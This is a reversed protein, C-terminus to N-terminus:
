PVPLTVMVEILGLKNFTYAKGTPTFTPALAFMDGWDATHGISSPTFGPGESVAGLLGGDPSFIRAVEPEYERLYVRGAPDVSTMGGRIGVFASGPAGWRKVVHGDAPDLFVIRGTGDSSLLITGDPMVTPSHALRLDPDSTSQGGVTWIPSGTASVKQLDGRGEDWVYVAGKADIALEGPFAFQGPNAGSTGFIRVPHGDPTFVQIRHNSGDAVYVLGSPAVAIDGFGPNDDPRRLDFEGVGSGQSGWKRVVKGTTPDIVTVSPTTDLVYLLGDQGVDMGLPIKLKTDSWPIIKAISFPNPPTTTTPTPAATEPPHPLQAVLDPEAWARIVGPSREVQFVLGGSVVPGDVGADQDAIPRTAWVLDGNGIAYAALSGDARAQYLIDGVLAMPQWSTPSDDHWVVSFRPGEDRLAYIGDLETNVYVIGDRTPGPIAQHGSPARFQWRPSGTSRDIAYTVGNPQNGGGPFTGEYITNGDVTPYGLSGSITPLSWLTSADAISVAYLKGDTAMLYAVGDSVAGISVELGTPGQWSWREDGTLPDFAVVRDISGIYLLGDAIIPRQGDQSRIPKSWREEGTLLEVAHLTGGLDVAFVLGDASAASGRFANAGARFEWATAGTHADVAVLLGSDNAAILRGDVLIPVFLYENGIEHHWAETPTSLPGPGPQRSSRLADMKFAPVDALLPLSTPSSAPAAVADPSGSTIQQSSGCASGILVVIALATAATGRARM